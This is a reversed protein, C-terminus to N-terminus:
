IIRYKQQRKRFAEVGGELVKLARERIKPNEISGSTYSIEGNGDRSGLIIQEADSNIVVNGNNSVLIVQRYEKAERISGILEEMIYENDLHDDHSDIIIPKDGEALYIKILVTAKQGLSLKNLRINKYKVTPIVSLYNWYLFKYFDGVTIANSSKLKTKLEQNLKEVERVLDDVGKGDQAVKKYLEILNKLTGEENEDRVIVRRNDIIDEADSLLKEEDFYIEAIFDLDSLVRAKKSSFLEIVEKYKERQSLITKILEEFPKKREENEIILQKKSEELQKNADKIQNLAVTSERKKDLLKAHEQVGAEVQELAKQEKEISSITTTIEKELLTIKENIKTSDQYSLATFSESIGLKSLLNNILIIQTNFKTLGDAIFMNAERLRDRLSIQLDRKNKLDSIVKQKDHALKVKEENLGKELAEIKESTDKLDTELQKEKVQANKVVDETTEKELKEITDSKLNLRETLENVKQQLNIFEYKKVSDKVSPSEFILDNVYQDLDSQDGIYEELEAQAIYAIKSDEFYKLDIVKKSFVKGNKFGLKAELALQPYAIRRVFSNKDKTNCRDIYCNAVLDVLATKGSGKGGTIAVLGSNLELDSKVMSLEKNIKGGNINLKEITYSSKVPTPDSSAIMVRDRPEYLIQKLGEFTPDSKLWCFRLDCESPKSRCNHSADGRLGCPVNIREIDRADSGWICPKLTKFEGIFGKEGGVYPDTGLCWQATKANSSFVMDSKQLIGKRINHDQGDWDILYFLEEPFVLIYKGKFKSSNSLIQTIEEHNVVTNMAGIEFASRGDQFAAHQSILTKGLEEINSLKLKKKEDNNQPNGEYYFNLDHLFHEEIDQTSVQDSFIVHFNLRRPEKGDKKSSIVSSLRFEINPLITHINRLRGGQIFSQLKKYGEITFYDTIGVVALDVSELKEVFKDWDPEGTSLKPYQNNLLSLPSHIHLDWKRWESGKPYDMGPVMRASILNIPCAVFEGM